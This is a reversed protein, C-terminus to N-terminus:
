ESVRVREREIERGGGGKERWREEKKNREGKM